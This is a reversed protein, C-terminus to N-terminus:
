FTWVVYLGQVQTGLTLLCFSDAFLFNVLESGVVNKGRSIPDPGVSGTVACM